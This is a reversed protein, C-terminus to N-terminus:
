GVQKRVLITFEYLGYDHLLAVNRSFRNKCHRFIEEPACYHLHPRMKEADSYSTLCNFAFGRSSSRDLDDLTDHIFKEWLPLPVDQRVNFLGSAVSYDAMRSCAGGIRFRANAVGAHRARAAQVMPECLDTGEYDIHLGQEALFTLLAGYGCGLDNLTVPRDSETGHDAQIIRVLQAFRLQQSEAGNWDVGRPTPGNERLRREYYRAIGEHLAHDDRTM